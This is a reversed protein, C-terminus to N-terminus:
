YLPKLGLGPKQTETLGQCSTFLGCPLTVSSVPSQTRQLTCLSTGRWSHVAPVVHCPFIHMSKKYPKNNNSCMTHTQRQINRETRNTSPAYSFIFPLSCYGSVTSTSFPKQSPKTLWQPYVSCRSERPLVCRGPELGM